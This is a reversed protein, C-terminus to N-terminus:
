CVVGLWVYELQSAKEREHLNYSSDFSVRVDEWPSSHTGLAEGSSMGEREGEKRREECVEM